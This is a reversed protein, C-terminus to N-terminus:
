IMHREGLISKENAIIAGVVDQETARKRKESREREKLIVKVKILAEL